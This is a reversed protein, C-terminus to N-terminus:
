RPRATSAQGPVEEIPRAGAGTAPRNRVTRPSDSSRRGSARLPPKGIRFKKVPKLESLPAVGAFSNWIDALRSGPWDGALKALEKEGAFAQANELNAPVAPHAVITNESDITFTSM